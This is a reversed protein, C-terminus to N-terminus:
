NDEDADAPKPKSDDSDVAVKQDEAPSEKSEEVQESALKEAKLRDRDERRQQLQQAFDDYNKQFDATRKVTIKLAPDPRTKIRTVCIYGWTSLVNVVQTLKAM